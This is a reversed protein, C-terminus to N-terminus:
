ETSVTLTVDGSYVDALLESNQEWLFDWHALDIKERGVLITEGNFTVDICVLNDKTNDENLGAVLKSGYTESKVDSTFGKDEDQNIIPDSTGRTGSSNKLSSGTVFLHYTKNSDARIASKNTLNGTAGLKVYFTLSLDEQTIDANVSSEAGNTSGLIDGQSLYFVPESAEVSVIFRITAGSGYMSGDDATFGVGTAILLVTMLVLWFKKM